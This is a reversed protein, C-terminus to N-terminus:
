LVILVILSYSWITAHSQDVLWREQLPPGDRRPGHWPEMSSDAAQIRLLQQIPVQLALEQQSGTLVGLSHVGQCQPLNDHNNHPQQSFRLWVLSHLVTHVYWYYNPTPPSTHVVTIDDTYLSRSRRVEASHTPPSTLPTHTPLSTLPYKVTHRHSTGRILGSCESRPSWCGM